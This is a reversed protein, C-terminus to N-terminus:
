WMQPEINFDYGGLLDMMWPDDLVNIDVSDFELPQIQQQEPMGAGAVADRLKEGGGSGISADRPGLRAVKAEWWSGIGLARKTAYPWPHLGDEDRNEQSLADWRQALLKTVDAIDLEVRM